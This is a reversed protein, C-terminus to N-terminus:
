YWKQQKKDKYFFTRGNEIYAIKLELRDIILSYSKLSLWITVLFAALALLKSILNIHSLDINFKSILFLVLCGIIELIVCVYVGELIGLFRYRYKAKNISKEMDKDRENKEYFYPYNIGRSEIMPTDRAWYGIKHIIGYNLDQLLQFFLIFFCLFTLVVMVEPTDGYIRFLEIVLTELIISSAFAFVGGLCISIVTLCIYLINIALKKM